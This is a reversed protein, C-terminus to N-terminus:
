SLRSLIANNQNFEENVIPKSSSANIIQDLHRKWILNEHVVKCLYLRQGLVDDIICKVFKKKNPNRYDRCYVIDGERFIEERKGKVNREIEKYNNVNKSILLDLRTRLKRQFMLEAPSVGTTVHVSNRYSFLYRNVLTEFSVGDNARDKLAKSLGAKFSKVANEAFGNSAPHFPPSWINSVM